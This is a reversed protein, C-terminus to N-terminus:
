PCNVTAVGTGLITADTASDLDSVDGFEANDYVNVSWLPSYGGDGPVTAVVNHTQANGDETVFGSAPGGGEQGPNTNFSVYIPSTPVSGGEPSLPAETFQFYNVVEGEYWGEVLDTSGDGARRTATSGEPVVPCNVLMDTAQMGYGAADLDALSTAANAQYEAPVTVRTVRWFDNYGEDGPKVDVINLQGEVPADEGERFLVYIPAPATAQVDFNYYEVMGGDPGLGRTLFPQQDFDIAEDPGPLADDDARVMLTGAAESFRDVSARPAEAPDTPEMGMSEDDMSEDDMSGDDMSENEMGGDDMSGNEMGGDDMSGNEMGGDDMSDSSGDSAGGDSGDSGDGTGSCGALALASVTGTVQLFRRRSTHEVM